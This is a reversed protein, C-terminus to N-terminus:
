QVAKTSCFTATACRRVDCGHHRPCPSSRSALGLSLTSRRANRTAEGLRELREQVSCSDCPERRHHLFRGVQSLDTIVALLRM